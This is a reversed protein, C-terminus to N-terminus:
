HESFSVLEILPPVGGVENVARIAVPELGNSIDAKLLGAVKEEAKGAAGFCTSDLNRSAAGAEFLQPPKRARKSGRAAGEPPSALAKSKKNSSKTAGQPESPVMDAAPVAEEEAPAEEEGFGMEKAFPDMGPPPVQKPRPDELYFFEVDHQLDRGHRYLTM